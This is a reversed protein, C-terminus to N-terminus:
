KERGEKNNNSLSIYFLGMTTWFVPTVIVVWLSVFDHIAYCIVGSLIVFSFVNYNKFIKRILIILFTIYTLFGAIGINVLMTLYVNAASDNISIKGDLNIVDQTYKDMFRPTFTDPGTGILPYDQILTISRKWLFIRYTGYDDKFNGQLIQHIEYIIKFEPGFDYLYIGVLTLLILVIILVYFIVVNRKKVYDYEYKKLIHSLLLFIIALSIFTITMWNLKLFLGVKGISYHYEPNITLNIFYAFMLTSIVILFRSFKKNNLIIFPAFLIITTLFALRGGNVNIVQFIIWGMLISLLHIVKYKKNEDLFIFAATSITLVTSFYASIFNVNGITGMFSVNHIGIGDQFINLPNFGIFQLIAIFNFLISSISFFYIYEKKFKGFLTIFLFTIVYLSITILGEGRGVGVFLNYKKLYPSLLCAIINVILFIMLVIKVKDIKLHKIINTGKFLYFYLATIGITFIYSVSIGIFAYYKCELIKFFGTSDVILPFIAIILFMYVETIKSMYKEEIELYNNKIDEVGREKM